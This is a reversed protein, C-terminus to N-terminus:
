KNGIYEIASRILPELQHFDIDFQIVKFHVESWARIYKPETRPPFQITNMIEEPIKFFFGFSVKSKWYLGFVNKKGLKYAIYQQCNKRQLGLDNESIYQELDQAIRLFRDVSETNRYIKYYEEDYEEEDEEKEDASHAMESYKELIKPDLDFRPWTQIALEILKNARNDIEKEDWMEVSKLSQNLNLPSSNFGGEITKKTTFKSNSLESNYGTLTLNGLVHLFTKHIMDWRPGLYQKWDENLTKPMIHEITYNEVNVKEKRNHNELKELLYKRNRINYVDKEKFSRAFETDDPFRRYSKQLIFYATTSEVIANKDFKKVLDLFTKNLSNTPIGCISRRFVYSEILVLIRAFEEASIKKEHYFKYIEMLFPYSVKVDIENLDELLYKVKNNDDKSNTINSYFNSYKLLDEVFDKIRKTNLEVSQNLVNEQTYKKFEPYIEEITPIQQTKLTLYDRIFRDFREFNNLFNTEMPLWYNQYTSNQDDQPLNMLLYNRILDTKSLGLGTSNLSEFILQPNDDNRDLSISVINFREIGNFIQNINNKNHSVRDKLSDYNRKLQSNFPRQINRNNFVDILHESDTRNLILKFKDHDRGYQNFIYSNCIEEKSKFPLKEKEVLEAMAFLILMITTIRQQGDILLVKQISGPQLENEAVFVISGIFHNKIQNNEALRLIDKWLQECQKEKWSYNRQYIPVKLQISTNLFRLLPTTQVQM